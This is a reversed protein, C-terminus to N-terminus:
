QCNRTTESTNQHQQSNRMKNSKHEFEDVTNFNNRTKQQHTQCHECTNISGGVGSVILFMLCLCACSSFLTQPPPTTPAPSPERAWDYRSHNNRTQDIYNNCTRSPKPNEPGFPRSYRVTTLFQGELSSQASLEAIQAMRPLCRGLCTVPEDLIVSRSGM